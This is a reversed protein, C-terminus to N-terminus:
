LEFNLTLQYVRPDIIRFNWPSGDTRFHTAQLRGGELLNQVNLQVSSKVRGSFWRFDYAAWASASYRAKDWFPNNPDLNTVRIEGTVPNPVPVKYGYGVSGKSVWGVNGGLRMNKLVANDFLGKLNYSSTASLSYKRIQTRPKGLNAVLPEYTGLVNGAWQDRRLTPTGSSPTLWFSETVGTNPGSMPTYSAAELIPQREEIYRKLSAALNSDITEKRAGTLKFNFNGDRSRYLVEMEYGKSTVDNTATRTAGPTNTFKRVVEKDFKMLSWV